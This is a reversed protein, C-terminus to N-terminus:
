VRGIRLQFGEDIQPTFIQNYINLQFSMIICHVDNAASSTILLHRRKTAVCIGVTFPENMFALNQVSLCVWKVFLGSELGCFCLVNLPFSFHQFKKKNIPLSSEHGIISNLWYNLLTGDFPRLWTCLHYSSITILHKYDLWDIVTWLDINNNLPFLSTLLFVPSYFFFLNVLVYVINSVINYLLNQPFCIVRPM